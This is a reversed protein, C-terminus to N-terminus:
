PAFLESPVLRFGPIARSTVAETGKFTRRGRARRLEITQAAADVLWVEKVGAKAYKAAKTTRDRSATSPSLVEVVLCARTARRAGPAPPADRVVVDPVLINRDDVGFDVPGVFVTRPDAVAKLAAAIRYVLDQHGYSPSPMKVFAGDLLEVRFDEPLRDYDATTFQLAKTV